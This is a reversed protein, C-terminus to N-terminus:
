FGSAFSCSLKRYRIYNRFIQIKFLILRSMLLFYHNDILLNRGDTATIEIWVCEQFYELDSRRKVGFVAESIAILAGGV